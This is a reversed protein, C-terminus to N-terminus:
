ASPAAMAPTSTRSCLYCRTIITDTERNATVHLLLLATNRADLLRDAKARSAVAQPWTDATRVFDEFTQRYDAVDTPEGYLLDAHVAYCQDGAYITCWDGQWSFRLAELQAGQMSRTEIASAIEQLYYIFARSNMAAAKAERGLRTRLADAAHSEEELIELFPRLEPFHELFATRQVDRTSEREERYSPRRFRSISYELTTAILKLQNGHEASVPASTLDAIRGRAEALGRRLANRQQYPAAVLAWGYTLVVIAATGLLLGILGEWIRQSVSANAPPTLVVGAIIGAIGFLVSGIWFTGRHRAAQYRAWRFVGRGPDPETM